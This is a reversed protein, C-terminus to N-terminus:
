VTKCLSDMEAWELGSWDMNVYFEGWGIENSLIVWQIWGFVIWILVWDMLSMEIWVMLMDASTM